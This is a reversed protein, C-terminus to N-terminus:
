PKRFTASLLRPPGDTVGDDYWEGLRELSLGADIGANVYDSTSHVFAAVYVIDGTAADRFHAQGGRLQRYPHLECIFLAGASRLVRAAESVVPRVDDVHELILNGIVLDVAANAIPWADRVDHRVFAVNGTVIRKRALDLMGQSFDMAVLSRAREALWATNKGTGCGVELVDRGTADPASRRVIIADLDRTANSDTDYSAAWRDYARSIDLDESVSFTM